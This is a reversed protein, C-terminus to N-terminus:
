VKEYVIFAIFFKFSPLSMVSSSHIVLPIQYNVILTIARTKLLLVMRIFLGLKKLITAYHKMFEIEQARKTTYINSYLM